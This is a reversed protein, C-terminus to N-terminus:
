VIMDIFPFKRFLLYCVRYLFFQQNEHFGASNAVRCTYNGNSDANVKSLVLTSMFNDTKHVSIDRLDILPRGDKFWSFEFPPDGSIVTCQVSERM